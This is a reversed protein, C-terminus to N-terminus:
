KGSRVYGKQGCLYLESKQVNTATEVKVHDFAAFPEVWLGRGIM